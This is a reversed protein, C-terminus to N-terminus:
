SEEKQVPFVLRKHKVIAMAVDSSGAKAAIELCSLGQKNRLTLNTGHDLLLNVVPAHGQGCAVNLASDGGVDQLDSSAKFDLLIEACKLQNTKAAWMLPTRYNNDRSDVEAGM